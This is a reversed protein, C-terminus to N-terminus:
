EANQQAEEETIQKFAQVFAASPQGGTLAYQENIIFTPVTTIGM